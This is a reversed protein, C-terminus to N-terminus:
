YRLSFSHLRDVEIFGAVEYLNNAASRDREGGPEDDDVYLIVQDAGLETLTELASGLLARGIGQGRTAPAVHIWWLVGIGHVPTGITAEAVVRHARTVTLQRTNPELAEVAVTDERPLEVAPLTRHMYRWLDLGRFGKDLLVQATVPRSRVPLAELGIGLATAFSFAEVASVGGLRGLAHDVLVTVVDPKERGHLWLILGADDRPRAAYSVVGVIVGELDVAVDVAVPRSLESWWGEDVTSRGAMAEALMEETVKPQGPLQDAHILSLVPDVDREGLPRARLSRDGM